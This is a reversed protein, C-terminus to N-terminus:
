ASVNAVIVWVSFKNRASTNVFRAHFSASAHLLYMTMAMKALYEQWVVITAYSMCIVVVYLTVNLM